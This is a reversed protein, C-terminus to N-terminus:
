PLQWLRKRRVMIITDGDFMCYDWGSRVGRRANVVVLEERPYYMDMYDEM